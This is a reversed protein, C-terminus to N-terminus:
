RPLSPYRAANNYGRLNRRLADKGRLVYVTELGHGTFELVKRVVEIDTQGEVAATFTAM